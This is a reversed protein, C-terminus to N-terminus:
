SNLYAEVEGKSLRGNGDTDVKAFNSALEKSAAAEQPSLSGDGNADLQDFNINGALVGMAPLLMMTAICKKM